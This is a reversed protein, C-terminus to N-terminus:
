NMLREGDAAGYRSIHSYEAFESPHSISCNPVEEAVEPGITYCCEFMTKKRTLQTKREMNKSRSLKSRRFGRRELVTGCNHSLDGRGVGKM